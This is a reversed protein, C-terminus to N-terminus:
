AAANLQAELARTDQGVRLIIFEAPKATALGVRGLIQRAQMTAVTNLGPGFNVNFATTADDSAFADNNMQTTLFAITQRQLASLTSTKIKRHKAVVLAQKLSREIFIVGRREGITPFNGQDSLTRSGDIHIPLGDLGVIPNILLPYILDRKNEDKVEDTELGLVNNFQGWGVGGPNKGMGAPAEYVGGPKSADNRAYVGAILGSPAVTVQSASGYLTANPNTVNVRPWYIAGFESSEYLLATSQVYTTMDQASYGAPSDLIAFCDGFRTAECYTIMANHVSPTARGPCTLIALSPTQDFARIGTMGTPDGNFDTDALSAVGDSGGSLSFMGNAPRADIVGVDASLDTVAILNSGDDVDNVVSVVYNTSTPDMTVNPWTEAVAGLQYVILNFYGAQGNTANAVQAQVDNGFAGDTKGEVLLTDVAGGAAGTQVANNFGFEAVASATSANTVQVSSSGGTTGSQLKIAGGVNSARVAGLAANIVTVAETATVGALTGVNGTGNQTGTTFGLVGNGTGGTVDVHSSTGLTDSSINVTNSTVLASAGTLQGNIAAAVEAATAAGISVFEASTFTITQVPGGDISLTLTNGNALAYPGAGSTSSAATGNFTCAIAGAGDIAVNLHDGNHLAFPAFNSGTEAGASVSLVATLLEIDAAASTKSSANTIDTYHCIRSIWLNVGGQDYFGRAAACVDGNVTDSGFIREYEEFSQVLTSGYPGRETVGVMGTDSIPQGQIPAITPEEEIIAIKPSLLANSM